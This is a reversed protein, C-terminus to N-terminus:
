SAGILGVQHKQRHRKIVRGDRLRIRVTKASLSVVTAITPRDSVTVIVRDGVKM